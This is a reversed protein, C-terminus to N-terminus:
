AEDLTARAAAVLEPPLAALMADLSGTRWTWKKGVRTLAAFGGPDDPDRCLLFGARQQRMSKSPDAPASFLVEVFYEEDEFGGQAAARRLCALLFAQVGSNRAEYPDERLLPHREEGELDNIGYM